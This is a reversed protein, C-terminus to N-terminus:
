SAVGALSLRRPILNQAVPRLCWQDAGVTQVLAVAPATAPNIRQTADVKRDSASLKQCQHPRRAGAFATKHRDDPQEVRWASSRKLETTMVHGTERAVLHRIQAVAMDSIDKLGVVQQGPAGGEPINFQGQEITADPPGFPALACNRRQFLDAQRVPAIGDRRIHRAALLLPNGDGARKNAVRVQDERVFGGASEVAPSAPLDQCKEALDMICPARHNQDRM